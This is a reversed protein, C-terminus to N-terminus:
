RAFSCSSDTSFFGHVRCIIEVKKYSNRYIVESYNYKNKHIKHAKKIFEIKNSMCSPHCKRCRHGKLHSYPVQFFGGHKSCIIKVKTRSNKYVVQSYDYEGGHIKIAEGIFQEKSKRRKNSRSIYSCKVCGQGLLHNASLQEFKGHYRCIITIKKRAHEYKAQSYDYQEGHVKKAKKVFEENTLRRM